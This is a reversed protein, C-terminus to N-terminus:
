GSRGRRSRTAGGRSGARPQRARDTPGPEPRMVQIEAAFGAMDVAHADLLRLGLQAARSRTQGPVPSIWCLLGGAPLLAAARELLGQLVQQAGGRLVRRGMPPNTLIVTVGALQHSLADATVLEAAVGAADLNARAAALAEASVDTGVLRRSPALLGRECLELASGAFPDWVVDDAPALSHTVSLRALAAAVTPHSAAPVDAVRYAFRPDELKRPELVVHVQDGDEGVHVHWTSDTPDNVLDPRRAAIAGAIRWVEARRHGGREWDVRFRAAGGTFAALIASADPSDLADVVADVAPGRRAPLPFGIAHHLRLRFLSALPGALVTEVRASAIAVVPWGGAALEAALLRELGARCRLLVPVPAPPAASADISSARGRELTRSATLIARELLRRLEPDSADPEVARLAALARVGGTMGLATALARRVSPESERQWAALLADEAAAGRVRALALAAQRRVRADGDTLAAAAASAVAARGGEATAGEAGSDTSADPAQDAALRAALRLLRARARPDTAAALRELAAPLALDARRALAREAARAPGDQDAGLDLLLDFLPAIDRRGPTFGPQAAREALPPQNERRAV